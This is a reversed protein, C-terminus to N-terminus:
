KKGHHRAPKVTVARTTTQTEGQPNAAVVTLTAKLSGKKKLKARAAGNLNLKVGVTKGAPVKTKASGFLIPKKAKSLGASAARAAAPATLTQTTNATPPNTAKGLTVTKGNQGVQLSGHTLKLGGDAPAPPAVPAAPPAGLTFRALMEYGTPDTPTVYEGNPHEPAPFYARNADAGNGIITRGTYLLPLSATPSLVSIAMGDLSGSAGPDAFNPTPQNSVALDLPVTTVQNAPVTFTPSIETVQCCDYDPVSPNESAILTGTLVVAQMPGPNPMAPLTVSTVTGSGGTTSPFPVGDSGNAPSTWNWLCTSAGHFYPPAGGECNLGPTVAQTPNGGFTTEARAVAAGCLLCLLASIVISCPLALRGRRPRWGLLVGRWLSRTQTVAAIEEEQNHSRVPARVM